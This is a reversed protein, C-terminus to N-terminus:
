IILITVLAARRRNHNEIAELTTMAERLNDLTACSDDYVHTM